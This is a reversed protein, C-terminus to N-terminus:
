LVALCFPAQYQAMFVLLYSLLDLPNIVRMLSRRQWSTDAADEAPAQLTNRLLCLYDRRLTQKPSAVMSVVQM